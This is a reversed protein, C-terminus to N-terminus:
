YNMNQFKQGRNKDFITNRFTSGLNLNIPYDFNHHKLIAKKVYICCFYTM